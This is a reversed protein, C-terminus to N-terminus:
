GGLGQRQPHAGPHPHRKARLQQILSLGDLKPLMLDVVAADYAITQACILGDEGDACHDVAYGSQKLGNVVFSAIKKDDEVVLIRMATLMTSAEMSALSLPLPIRFCFGERASHAAPASQAHQQRSRDLHSDLANAPKAKTWSWTAAAATAGSACSPPRTARSERDPQVAEEANKVPKRNIEQIVDGPQLGAEAAASDPEVETVVAGKVDAPVEFQQRAQTDLDAVGVGNLTGTDDNGDNDAKALTRAHRAARERHSRPDQGSGDRLIKVPM